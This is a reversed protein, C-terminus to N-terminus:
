ARTFRPCNLCMQPFQKTQFLRKRFDVYPESNWIDLTKSDFINGFSQKANYDFCCPLVDGNIFIIMRLRAECTRVAEYIQDANRCVPRQYEPLTTQQLNNAFFLAKTIKPMIGLERCLSAFDALQHENHKFVTFQGYIKTSVNYKQLLEINSLVKNYDGSRRAVQYMEPTTADLPVALSDLKTEMLAKPDPIRNANTSLHVKSFQKTYAIIDIIDPNLLPEGWVFPAVLRAYPRIKEAVAVYRDFPMFANKRTILNAGVPCEPCSLNCVSSTEVYFIFPNAM